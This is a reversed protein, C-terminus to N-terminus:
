EIAMIANFVRECNHSDRHVFYKETRSSYLREISFNNKTIERFEDIVEDESVCVKGFGDRRYDFYGKEYHESYYSDEDFQFYISPKNMYAFDFYVSSFDTILLKSEKLLKQVSEEGFKIIQVAEGGSFLHIYKKFSHHMYFKIAIHNKLCYNNLGENNILSMWNCFFVTNKFDKDNLNDLNARWTPMIIIQNLTNFDNLLDYRPFGTYQPVNNCYNFSNFVYDFEPKAGCVFLKLSSCSESLLGEHMNKTIGHQLFVHIDRTKNRRFYTKFQVWPAYGFLQSSIKVPCGILMILHKLSGFQITKGLSSVNKFQDCKKNIIYSVNIESHNEVLYKFFIFANDQAEDERECIIWNKKRGYMLKCIPYLLFYMILFSFYKAKSKIHTYKNDRKMDKEIVPM